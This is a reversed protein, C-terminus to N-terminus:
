TRRRQPANIVSPRFLNRVAPKQMDGQLLVIAGGVFLWLAKSQFETTILLVSMTFAVLPGLARSVDPSHPRGFAFAAVFSVLLGLGVVGNEAMTKIWGSHAALGKTTLATEANAHQFAGTGIGMPNRKFTDWGFKAISGRSSTAQETTLEPNVFRGWKAATRSFQAGSMLPVLLFAVTVITLSYGKWRFGPTRMLIYLTLPLATLFGGRSATIFALALNVTVLLSVLGWRRPAVRTVALAMAAIGALPVHVLANPNIFLVPRLYYFSGICTASATAAVIATWWLTEDSVGARMFCGVLAFGIAVEFTAHLGLQTEPSITVQIGLVCVFALLIRLRTDLRTALAPLAWATALLLLYNLTNHPLGLPIFLTVRLAPDIACLMAVGLLGVGANRPLLLVAVFAAAALLAVVAQFGGRFGILTGVMFAAICFLSLFQGARAIPSVTQVDTFFDDDEMDAGGAGRWAMEGRMM